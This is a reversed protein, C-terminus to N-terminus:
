WQIMERNQPEAAMDEFLGFEIQAVHASNLRQPQTNPRGAAYGCFYSLAKRYPPAKGCQRAAYGSQGRSESVANACAPWEM